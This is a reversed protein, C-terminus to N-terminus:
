EEMRKMENDARRVMWVALGFILLCVASGTLANMLRAFQEEGNGFQTLMATQTALIAMLACAFSLMKAAALVPQELKRHKAMNRVAIGVCYFAYAAFAYILFGPYEYTKNQWVLQVVLSSVAINLLFMLIGCFRYSKLGFRRQEVVDEYKLNHRYRKILLFRMVSLLMYYVALGGLWLSRFHVGAMFKFVSYFASIGFSLYLSIKARLEADSLYKSSYKNAYLGRKAGRFVRPLKICVVVLTYASVAYGVYTLVPNASPVCFGYVLLVASIIVLLVVLWWPLGLAKLVPEWLRERWTRACWRGFRAFFEGILICGTKNANWWVSLSPQVKEWLAKFM